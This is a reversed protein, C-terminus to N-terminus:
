KKKEGNLARIRRTFNGYFEKAKEPSITSDAIPSM